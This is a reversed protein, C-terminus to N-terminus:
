LEDRQGLLSYRQDSPSLKAFQSKPPTSVEKTSDKNSSESAADSPNPKTPDPGHHFERHLKGSHLDAIFEKLSSPESLKNIDKYLYMHRFDDIAILPLDATSKGLHVLPHSFQYGNATLFNMNDKESYLESGVIKRFTEVIKNDGNPDYFLLLFPLGEETLEEANQFTIERVLPVCKDQTWQFFYNNGPSFGNSYYIDDTSQSDRFGATDGGHRFSVSAEGFAVHFQCDSRFFNAVRRFIDYTKSEKSELYGIIHRRDTDLKMKEVDPVVEIDDKMQVRVFEKFAEATRQGRYEKKLVRGDRYLKLTPYKNVHYKNAVNAQTICNVKALMVTPFERQIEDSAQDFIPKLSQSFHCWDAYFNVIAFEAKGTPSFTAYVNSICEM